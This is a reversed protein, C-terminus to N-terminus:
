VIKLLISGMIDVVVWNPDTFNLLLDGKIDM